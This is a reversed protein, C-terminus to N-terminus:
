RKRYEVHVMSWVITHHYFNQERSLIVCV